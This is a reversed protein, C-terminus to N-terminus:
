RAAALGERRGEWSKGHMGHRRVKQARTTHRLLRCRRAEDAPLQQVSGSMLRSAGSGRTAAPAAGLARAARGRHPANRARQPSMAVQLAAPTPSRRVRAVRRKDHISRTSPNRTPRLSSRQRSTPLTISANQYLSVDSAVGAHVWDVATRLVCVDPREMEVKEM